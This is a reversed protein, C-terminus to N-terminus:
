KMGITEIAKPTTSSPSRSAHFAGTPAAMMTPPASKDRLPQPEGDRLLWATGGAVVVVLAAMAVTHARAHGLWAMARKGLELSDVAADLALGSLAVLGRRLFRRLVRASM